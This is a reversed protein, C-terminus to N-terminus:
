YLYLFGANLAFYNGTANAEYDTSLVTYRSWVQRHRWGAEFFGGIHLDTILRIGGVAGLNFGPWPEDGRPTSTDDLNDLMGFTFGIPVGVYPELFVSDLPILIRAQPMISFDFFWNREDMAISDAQMTIAEFLGSIAFHDNLPSTHRVGFGLSPELGASTRVRGVIPADSRLDADGAFGFAGYAEIRSYDRRQAAATRPSVLCLTALALARGFLKWM